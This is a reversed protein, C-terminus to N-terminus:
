DNTIRVKPNLLNQIDWNGKCSRNRANHCFWKSSVEKITQIDERALEKSISEYFGTTCACGKCPKRLPKLAPTNKDMVIMAKFYETSSTTAIIPPVFKTM